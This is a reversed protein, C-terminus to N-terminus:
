VIRGAPQQTKDPQNLLPAARKKLLAEAFRELDKKYCGHRTVIAQFEEIDHKVTRWVPRGKQDYKKEFEKDLAPAAHCLEHDLLARKKEVTFESDNWVEKNLLIVFDWRSLEKQLDSAKMCRGLVLHGDVDPKLAKRWALCIHASHLHEHWNNRVEDLLRYPESNDSPNILEYNVKKPKSM